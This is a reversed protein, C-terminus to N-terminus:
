NGGGQQLVTRVRGRMEATGDAVNIVMEEASIASLGQTLLVDGTLTLFGTEIDYLADQAEAAEEATVFTVGGSAIMQRIETADDNYVVEIRAATLKLDGQQVFVDGDFIATGKAQDISLSDATVEVAATTDVAIGGLSINSQAHALGAIGIFTLLAIAKLHTM